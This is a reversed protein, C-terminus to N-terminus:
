KLVMEVVFIIMYVLEVEELLQSMPSNEEDGPDDLAIFVCNSVIAFLIIRQFWLTEVVKLRLWKQFRKICTLDGDDKRASLGRPFEKAVEENSMSRGKWAQSEEGLFQKVVTNIEQYESTVSDEFIIEFGLTEGEPTSCM